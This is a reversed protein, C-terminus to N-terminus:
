EQCDTGGIRVKVKDSDAAIAMDAPVHQAATETSGCRTISLQYVDTNDFYILDSAMSYTAARILLPAYSTM